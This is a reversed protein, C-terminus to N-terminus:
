KLINAITKLTDALQEKVTQFNQYIPLSNIKKSIEKAEDIKGSKKFSIMEEQLSKITDDNELIEKLRLYEKAEPLELIKEQIEKAIELSNSM